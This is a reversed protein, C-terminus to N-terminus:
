NLLRISFLDTGRVLDIPITHKLLEQLEGTPFRQNLLFPLDSHSLNPSSPPSSPFQRPFPLFLRSRTPGRPRTLFDTNRGLLLQVNYAPQLCPLLLHFNAKEFTLRAATHVSIKVPGKHSEILLLSSGTQQTQLFLVAAQCNCRLMPSGLLRNECM